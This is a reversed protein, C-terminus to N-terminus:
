GGSAPREPIEFIAYDIGQISRRELIQREPLGYAALPVARYRKGRWTTFLSGDGATYWLLETGEGTEQAAAAGQTEENPPVEPLRADASPPAGEAEAAGSETEPAESEQPPTEEKEPPTEGSPAAYEMEGPFDRLAARSLRKRIVLGGSEPLMVGLRGERGQGYVSLRMIGGPDECRGEFVTYPGEQRIQLRGSERGHILIPIEM